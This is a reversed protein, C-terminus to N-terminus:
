GLQTGEVMALKLIEVLNDFEAGHQFAHVALRRLDDCSKKLQHSSFVKRAVGTLCFSDYQNCFEAFFGSQLDITQVLHLVFNNVMHWRNMYGSCSGPDSKLIRNYEQMLTDHVGTRNVVAALLQMCLAQVKVAPDPPGVHVAMAHNYGLRTPIASGLRIRINVQRGTKNSKVSTVKAGDFLKIFSQIEDQCARWIRNYVFQDQRSPQGPLHFYRPSSQIMVGISGSQSFVAM